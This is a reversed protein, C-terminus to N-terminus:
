KWFLSYPYVTTRHYGCLQLILQLYEFALSKSPTKKPSGHPQITNSKPWNGLFEDAMTPFTQQMHSLSIGIDETANLKKSICQLIKHVLATICCQLACVMPIATIM